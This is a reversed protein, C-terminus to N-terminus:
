KANNTPRHYSARYRVRASPSLSGSGRTIYESGAFYTAFSLSSFLSSLRRSNL